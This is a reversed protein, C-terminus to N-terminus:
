FYPPFTYGGVDRSTSAVIQYSESHWDDGEKVLTMAIVPRETGGWDASEEAVAIVRSSTGSYSVVKYYLLDGDVGAEALVEEVAPHMRGGFLMTMTEAYGYPAITCVFFLWGMVRWSRMEDRAQVSRTLAYLVTLVVAAAFCLVVYIVFGLM